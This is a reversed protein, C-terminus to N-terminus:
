IKVKKDGKQLAKTINILKDVKKLMKEDTLNAKEIKEKSKFIYNCRMEKWMLLSGKAMVFNLHATSFKKTDFAAKARHQYLQFEKGAKICARKEDSILKDEAILASFSLLLFFWIKKM